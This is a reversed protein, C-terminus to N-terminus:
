SKEFLISKGVLPKVYQNIHEVYKDFDLPNFATVIKSSTSYIYLNIYDVISNIINNNNYDFNCNIEIFRYFISLFDNLNLSCDCWIIIEMKSLVFGQVIMNNGFDISFNNNDGLLFPVGNFIELKYFVIDDTLDPIFPLDRIKDNSFVFNSINYNNEGLNAYEDKFNYYNELDKYGNKSRIEWLIMGYYSRHYMVWYANWLLDRLELNDLKILNESLKKIYSSFGNEFLLNFKEELGNDYINKSCLVKKTSGRKIMKCTYESSNLNSYSYQYFNIVNDDFSSMYYKILFQPVMHNNVGM